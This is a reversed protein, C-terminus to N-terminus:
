VDVSFDERVKKGDIYVVGEGEKSSFACKQAMGKSILDKISTVVTTKTNQNNATKNESDKKSFVFYWLGVGVLLLIVIAIIIKKNM